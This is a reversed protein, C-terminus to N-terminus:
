DRGSAGGDTWRVREDRPLYAACSAVVALVTVVGIITLPDLRSVDVLVVQLVGTVALSGGIASCWGLAVM